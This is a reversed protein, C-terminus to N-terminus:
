GRNAEAERRRMMDRATDDLMALTSPTIPGRHTIRATAGSPLTVTTSTIEEQQTNPQRLYAPVPPLARCLAPDQHAAHYAAAQEELWKAAPSINTSM